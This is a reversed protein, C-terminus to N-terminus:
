EWCLQLSQQAIDSNNQHLDFMLTGRSFGDVLGISNDKDRLHWQSQCGKGRRYKPLRELKQAVTQLVTRGISHSRQGTQRDTVNTYQPWVTPHILISSPVPTPRPGPSVTNSPSRPGMSLPVAAGVKQGVDIAPLRDGM